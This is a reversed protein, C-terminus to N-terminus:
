RPADSRHSHLVKWEGDARVFVTTQAFGAVASTGDAFTVETEGDAVLLAADPSLITVMQRKWRYQVKRVAAFGRKVSDHAEERTLFVFGNQVISGRENPLLFTFLRDIDRAEAARTMQQNVALISKEIDDRQATSQAFVPAALLIVALKLSM